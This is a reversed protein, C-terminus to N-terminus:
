FECNKLLLTYIRSMKGRISVKIQNNHHFPSWLYCVVEHAFSHNRKRPRSSECVHYIDLYNIKSLKGVDHVSFKNNYGDSFYKYGISLINRSM